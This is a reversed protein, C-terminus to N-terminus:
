PPPRCEYVVEVDHGVLDRVSREIKAHMRNELWDRARTNRLQVVLRQGNWAVGRTDRLWTDFTARPMQLQLERLANEWLRSATWGGDTPEVAKENPMDTEAPSVLNEGISTCSAEAGAFGLDVGAQQALAKISEVFIAGLNAHQDVMGVELAEHIAEVFLNLHNPYLSYLVKYFMGTSHHDALAEEALRVLPTVARRIEVNSTLNTNM